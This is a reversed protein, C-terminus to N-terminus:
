HPVFSIIMTPGFLAGHPPSRTRDSVREKERRLAEEEAEIARRDAGLRAAPLVTM